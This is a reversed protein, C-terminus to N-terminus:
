WILFIIVKIRTIYVITKIYKIFKCVEEYRKCVYSFKEFRVKGGHTEKLNEDPIDIQERM